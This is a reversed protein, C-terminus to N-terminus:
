HKLSELTRWAEKKQKEGKEKKKPLIDDNGMTMLSFFFGQKGRRIAM